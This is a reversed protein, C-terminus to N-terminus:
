IKIKEDIDKAQIEFRISDLRDKIKSYEEKLSKDKIDIAPQFIDMNGEFHNFDNVLTKRSMFFIKDENRDKLSERILEGLLIISGKNFKREIKGSLLPTLVKEVSLRLALYILSHRLTKNLLKYKTEDKLINIHEIDSKITCIVELSNVEIKEEFSKMNSVNEIVNANMEKYKDIFLENYISALDINRNDKSWHMVECLSKYCETNGIINSYGRMFPVMSILFLKEDKIEERIKFRFLDILKNLKLLIPKECDDIQIFGNEGDEKNQLIYLNFISGVQGEILKILDVNHTLILCKKNESLSNICYIVKNKYISDFSSIPDDIVIIKEKINRARMFEFALSIFNQEGNSLKLNKRDQNLLEEGELTLRLKKNNDKDIEIKLTKEINNSIIEQLFLIDDGELKPQKQLIDELENIKEQISSSNIICLTDKLIVNQVYEIYMRVECQIDEIGKLNGTEIADLLIDKINFEDVMINSELIKLIHEKMYKDLTNKITENRIEKDKILKDVNIEHDCVICEDKYKFKNLIDIASNTERLEKIESNDIIKKTDIKIVLDFYGSKKHYNSIISEVKREDIKEDKNIIKIKNCDDIFKKIAIDDDKIRNNVIEQFHNKFYKIDSLVLDTITSIKYNDKLLNKIDKTIKQFELKIENELKSIKVIDHSIIFDSEEGEIIHRNNQDYIVHINERIKDNEISGEYSIDIEGLGKNKKDLMKSLTTKGTGNPAYIIALGNIDGKSKGKFIIENNKKLDEFDEVFIKDNKLKKIIIKEM